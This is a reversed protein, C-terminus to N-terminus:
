SRFGGLSPAILLNHLWNPPYEFGNLDAFPSRRSPYERRLRDSSPHFNWLLAVARVALPAAETGHLYQMLYLLRDQSNM